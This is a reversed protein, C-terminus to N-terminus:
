NKPGSLKKVYNMIEEWTSLPCLDLRLGNDIAFRYWGRDNTFFVTVPLTNMRALGTAIDRLYKRHTCHLKRYKKHFVLRHTTKKKVRLTGAEIIDNLKAARPDPIVPLDKIGQYVFRFEYLM